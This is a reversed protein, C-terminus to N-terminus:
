DVLENLALLNGETDKVFASKVAGFDTVESDAVGAQGAFSTSGPLAQFTAGRAKLGEVVDEIREVLFSVVPYPPPSRDPLETLVISTGHAAAFMMPDDTPGSVLKLGLVDRYFARARDGDQAPLVPNVPFSDLV